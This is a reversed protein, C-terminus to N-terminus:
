RQLLGSEYNDDDEGVALSASGVLDGEKPLRLM